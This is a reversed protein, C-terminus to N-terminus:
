EGLMEAHYLTEFFVRAFEAREEEDDFSLGKVANVVNEPTVHDADVIRKISGNEGYEVTVLLTETTGPRKKYTPVAVLPSCVCIM